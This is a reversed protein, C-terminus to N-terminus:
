ARDSATAPASPGATPQHGKNRVYAVVLGVIGCAAFVTAGLAWGGVVDSWYHAHLYERSAGILAAWIVTGTVLVAQSVFGPLVRAAILGLMVYATAYAAHGSPYSSLSTEVLATSPRPRDVAAKTIHTGAYVLVSSVALTVSEIWRKKWTLLVLAVLILTGVVVSTGFFTVVKAIDELWDTRIREVLDDVQRDFRTPGM